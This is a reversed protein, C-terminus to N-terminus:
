HHWEELKSVEDILDRVDYRFQISVDDGNVNLELANLIEMAFPPVDHQTGALSALARAGNLVSYINQAADANTAIIHATLYLEGRSEGVELQLGRAMEAVASAREFRALDDLVGGADIVLFSGHSWRPFLRREDSQQLNKARGRLVDIARALQNESESVVAVRRDGDHHIYFAGSDGGGEWGHLDIGDRRISRYESQQQLQALASDLVRGTEVMIVPDDGMDANGSVTIADVEDLPQFGFKQEFRRLGDLDDQDVDFAGGVRMEERFMKWLNTARLSEVNVHIVWTADASIRTVDLDSVPLAPALAVPTNLLIPLLLM